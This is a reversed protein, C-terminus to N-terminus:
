VDTASSGQQRASARTTPHLIAAPLRRPKKQRTPTAANTCPDSPTPNTQPIFPHPVPKNAQQTLAHDRTRRRRGGLQQVAQSALSSPAQENSDHSAYPFCCQPVRDWVCQVDTGLSGNLCCRAKYGLQWRGGPGVYLRTGARISPTADQGRGCTSCPLTSGVCPAPRTLSAGAPPAAM